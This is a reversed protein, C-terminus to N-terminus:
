NYFQFNKQHNKILKLYLKADPDPDMVEHESDPYVVSSHNITSCKKEVQKSQKGASWFKELSLGALFQNEEESTIDVLYTDPM